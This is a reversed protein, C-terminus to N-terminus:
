TNKTYKLLEPLIKLQTEEIRHRQAKVEEMVSSNGKLVREYHTSFTIQNKSNELTKLVYLIQDRKARRVNEIKHNRSTTTKKAKKPLVTVSIKSRNRPKSTKSTRPSKVTKPVKSVKLTRKDTRFLQLNQYM